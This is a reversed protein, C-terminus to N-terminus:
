IVLDLIGNELLKEGRSAMKSSKCTRPAVAAALMM